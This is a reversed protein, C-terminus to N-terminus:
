HSWWVEERKLSVKDAAENRGVGVHASVWLFGVKTLIYIYKGDSALIM